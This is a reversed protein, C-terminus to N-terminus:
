APTRKLAALEQEVVNSEDEWASVIDLLAIRQEVTLFDLVHDIDTDAVFAWIRRNEYATQRQRLEAVTM